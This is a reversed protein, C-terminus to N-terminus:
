RQRQEFYLDKKEDVKKTKLAKFEEETMDVDNNLPVTYEIPTGCDPCIKLDRQNKELDNYSVGDM